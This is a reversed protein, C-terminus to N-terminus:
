LTIKNNSTDKHVLDDFSFATGGVEQGFLIPFGKKHLTQQTTFNLLKILFNLNTTREVKIEDLLTQVAFRFAKGRVKVAASDGFNHVKLGGGTRQLPAFVNALHLFRAM